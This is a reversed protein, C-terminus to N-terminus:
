PQPLVPTKGSSGDPSVLANFANGAKALSDPSLAPKGIFTVGADIGNWGISLRVSPGSYKSMSGCGTLTAIIIACLIAKM